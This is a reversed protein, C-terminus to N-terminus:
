TVQMEGTVSYRRDNQMISQQERHTSKEWNPFSKTKAYQSFICFAYQLTKKGMYCLPRGLVDVDYNRSNTFTVKNLFLYNEYTTKLNPFSGPNNPHVWPTLTPLSPSMIVSASIPIIDKSSACLPWLGLTFTAVVLQFLCPFANKQDGLPILRRPM